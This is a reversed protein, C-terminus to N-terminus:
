TTSRRGEMEGIEKIVDLSDAARDWAGIISSPRRAARQWRSPARAYAMGGLASTSSQTLLESLEELVQKQIPEPSWRFASMERCVLEIQNDDFQKLV